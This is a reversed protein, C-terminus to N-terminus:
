RTFRMSNLEIDIEKTRQIFKNFCLEIDAISQDLNEFREHGQEIQRIEMNNVVSATSGRTTLEDQTEFRM